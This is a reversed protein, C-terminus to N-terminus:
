GEVKKVTVYYNEDVRLGTASNAAAAVAAPATQWQTTPRLMTGGTGVLVRVPMDFGPVANAWRYQVAGGQARYELVPIM